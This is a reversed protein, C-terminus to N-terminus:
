KLAIKYQWTTPFYDKFFAWMFNKMFSNKGKKDKLFSRLLFNDM